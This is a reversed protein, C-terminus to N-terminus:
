IRLSLVEIIILLKKELLDLMVDDYRSVGFDIMASAWRQLCIKVDDSLCNVNVTWRGYRPYNRIRIFGRDILRLIIRERANGEVGIVENDKDYEAQIEKSSLGFAEPNEIVKLIHKTDVAM